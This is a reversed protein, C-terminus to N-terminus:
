HIATLEVPKGDKDRISPLVWSGGDQAALGRAVVIRAPPVGLDQLLNRVNDLRTDALEATEGTQYQSDLVLMWKPHESLATGYLGAYVMLWRYWVASLRASGVEFRVQALPYDLIDVPPSECCVTATLNTPPAPRQVFPTEVHASNCVRSNEKTFACVSFTAQRTVLESRHIGVRGIPRGERFLEKGDQQVTLNSVNTAAVFIDVNTPKEITSPYVGIELGNRGVAMPVLPYASSEIAKPFFKPSQAGLGESVTLRETNTRVFETLVHVDVAQRDTNCRRGSLCESVYYSFVGHRLWASEYSKQGPSSSTFALILVDKAVTLGSVDNQLVAARDIETGGACADLFLWLVSPQLRLSITRVLTDLSIGNVQPLDPSGDSPMLFFNGLTDVEGHGSFFFFVQECRQDTRELRELIDGRSINGNLLVISEPRVGIGLPSALADRFMRADDSAYRLQFASDYKPYQGIGIAIGCSVTTTRAGLQSRQVPTQPYLSGAFLILSIITRM